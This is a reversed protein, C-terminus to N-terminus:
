YGSRNLMLLKYGKMSFRKDESFYGKEVLEPIGQEHPWYPDHVVVYDPKYYDFWKSFKRQGIFEANMPNVLGLIDIVYRDSYWGLHGIEVAAIKSDAPTNDRLWEGIMEYEKHPAEKQLLIFMQVQTGIPYVFIVALLSYKLIANVTNKSIYIFVDYAGYSVLIFLTLMHISYYWHYNPIHLALYFFTILIVYAFLILLFKERYHKAFGIFAFISVIIIYFAQNNFSIGFLVSAGTLFGFRGWLGSSGQAIKASLTQPFFSGYYYLNFIYNACLILIFIVFYKIKVAKKNEKMILFFLLLLLFIGEGRTLILGASFISLFTLNKKFYFYICCLSMLVFLNSEMGFVLYFYKSSVLVISCIFGVVPQEMNYLIIALIVASSILLLCNVILLSTAIERTIGSVIMCIYIYLPSTLGNFKEGLNYVLGNGDIFNKLYRQYILADDLSFNRNLFTIVCALVIIILVNVKFLKNNLM